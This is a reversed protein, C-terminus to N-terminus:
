RIAVQDLHRRRIDVDNQYLELFRDTPSAAKPPLNTALQRYVYSLAISSLPRQKETGAHVGLCDCNPCGSRRPRKQSDQYLFSLIFGIDLRRM